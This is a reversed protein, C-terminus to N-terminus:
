ISNGRSEEQLIDEIACTVDRKLSETEESLRRCQLMLNRIAIKMYRCEIGSWAIDLQDQYHELTQGIHLASASQQSLQQIQKEAKQLNIDM